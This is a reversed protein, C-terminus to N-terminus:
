GPCEMGTNIKFVHHIYALSGGWEKATGSSKVFMREKSKDRDKWWKLM